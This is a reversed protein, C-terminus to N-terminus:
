NINPVPNFNTYYLCHMLGTGPGLLQKEKHTLNFCSCLARELDLLSARVFILFECFIQYVATNIHVQPQGSIRLLEQDFVKVMGELMRDAITKSKLEVPLVFCYLLLM